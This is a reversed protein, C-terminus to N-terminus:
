SLASVLFKCSTPKLEFLFLKRGIAIEWLVLSAALLAWSAPQATGREPYDPLERTDVM